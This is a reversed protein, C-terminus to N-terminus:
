LLEVSLTPTILLAEDVTAEVVSLWPRAALAQRVLLVNAADLLGTIDDLVLLSVDHLLARAILLRVREGSSLGEGDPSLEQDLNLELGVERLIEHIQDDRYSAGLTLADRLSGEGMATAVTVVGIPNATIAVDGSTAARWGLCTELLTSKGSGSPGTIALHEGSRLRISLPTAGVATVLQDFQLVVEEDIPHSPSFPVSALWSLADTTRERQHFAVGYRRVWGIFEATLLVSLLAGGLQKTGHLLGFGEVMAVLGVSVGGLFETVLSSGLAERIARLAGEHERTSLAAITAAGFPVAGLARLEVGHQLLDLQYSGLQARHDRFTAEAIAARRGARIYFPVAVGVLAVVILVPIWGGVFYIAPLALASTGAATRLTEFSTLHSADDIAALLAVVGRDHASALLDVSAVRQRARHDHALSNNTRAIVRSIMLRVGVALGILLLGRALHENRLAVIGATLPWLLALSSVAWFVGRLRAALLASTSFEPPTTRPM